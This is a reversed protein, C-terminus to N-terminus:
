KVLVIKRSARFRGTGEGAEMRLFYVGSAANEGSDTLGDWVTEYSGPDVPGEVLNRVLRGSVDYVRISLPGVAAM